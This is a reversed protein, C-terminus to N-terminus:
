SNSGDRKPLLRTSRALYILGPLVELVTLWLRSTVSVVLAEKETALQMAYLAKTQVGERVGVGGPLFFVLYGIVYSLAYAAVYDTTTGSAHGLVGHVLLQFSWGYLLWAAINGAIAIYVARPPLTGLQLSRGTTREILAALRPMLFPLLLVGCIIVITFAVGLSAYGGTLANFARFGAVVGVAFGIGINVITNLVSSGAAAAPPVDARRAMESMALIQWVKGPVYRGLNSVCWIRVANAFTMRAGWSILIQRWIEVLLAYTVLVVVGSAAIYGWEFEVHLPADRFKRWDNLLAYAVYVLVIAAIVIQAVRWLTARKNRRDPSPPAISTPTANPL